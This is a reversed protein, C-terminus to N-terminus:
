KQSPKLKEWRNEYYAELESHSKTSKILEVKSVNQTRLIKHYVHKFLLYPSIMTQFPISCLGLLQEAKINLKPDM